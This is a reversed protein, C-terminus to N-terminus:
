RPEDTSCKTPEANSPPLKMAEIAHLWEVLPQLATESDHWHKKATAAVDPGANRMDWTWYGYRRSAESGGIDVIVSSFWPANQFFVRQSDYNPLASSQANKVLDRLQELQSSDLSSEFINLTATPSPLVQRRRELHFRGDPLVLLCDSLTVRRENDMMAESIRVVFSEPGPSPNTQAGAIAPLTVALALALSLTLSNLAARVNGLVLDAESTPERHRGIMAGNAGEPISVGNIAALRFRLQQTDGKM